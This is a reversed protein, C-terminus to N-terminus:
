PLAEVRRAPRLGIWATAEPMFGIRRGIRNDTVTTFHGGRFVRWDGEAERLGDPERTPRSFPAYVDRTWEHVNGIVDHLGYPNPRFADVPSTYAYGDDWSDQRVLSCGHDRCTQDALNIAGELMALDDGSWNVTTTGARAAYEWQAETPLMLGLRRMMMDANWWSVEEVPHLLTHRVPGFRRGAPFRSPNRGDIRLWQGQTMEFKSIFFPDRITVTHVPGENSRALLDVNPTGPPRSPSPRVSGMEFTGGPLLVFVLGTDETLVLNGAADRTPIEGTERHIFEWLSSGPDRGLPVLGIQPQIRLGNYVPCESPDAISAIARSWADRHDDITRTHVTRAFSLSARVRDYLGHEPAAFQELPQMLDQALLQRFQQEATRAVGLTPASQDLTRRHLPLRDLLGRAPGDLWAEIRAANGPIAPWLRESEAIVRELVIKDSLRLIDDRQRKNQLFLFTSTVFGIGLTLLLAGLVAFVAKNGQVLKYLRYGVTPPRTLIPEGHLYRRIEAGLEAATPYRRESEEEVARLLIADLDGRIERSLGRRDTARRQVADRLQGTDLVVHSPKRGLVPLVGVLLEHLVAGLSYIDARTDVVGRSPDAQEPSRYRPTGIASGHVTHSSPTGAQQVTKAIGFDIIKPTPEDGDTVLINSPKLDRHVIGKHHAHQVADCVEVFLSLRQRVTLRRSDCFRTIPQGAVFEMTFFPRGDPMAGAEFISAIGPHSMRALTQREREFLASLRPTVMGPKTVKLAVPRTVPALQDAKYVDGTGGEGVLEVIRYRGAAVTGPALVLPRTGSM